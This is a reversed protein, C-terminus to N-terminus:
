AGAFAGFFNGRHLRLERLGIRHQFEGVRFQLAGFIQDGGFEELRCFEIFRAACLLTIAGMNGFQFRLERHRMQGAPRIFDIRQGGFHARSFFLKRLGFPPEILFRM